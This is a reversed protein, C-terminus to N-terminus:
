KILYRKKYQLPTLGIKKKFTKSFYNPTDFNLIEAINSVSNDTERLLQKAKEMKLDSYYNMVTKGTIKKFERFIHARSYATAGCIDDIDLSSYVKQNLIKVIDDIFKNDYESKKLFSNNGKKTETLSRILEILFIELYNKILQEGGLPATKLLELKKLNPNSIAIDFTKRAEEVILYVYNKLNENLKIKKDEFFHMSQSKCEFSSIFVNPAKKGDASLSHVVNPKHFLIEGENLLVDKGNVSCIIKEKDAYVIEWFDHSENEFKFNKDFEFYHITVIKNINILNELKYRFYKKM